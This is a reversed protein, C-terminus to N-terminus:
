FTAPQKCDLRDLRREIHGLAEHLDHFPPLLPEQLSAGAHMPGSGIARSSQQLLPPVQALNPDLLYRLRHAVKKDAQERDFKGEAAKKEEPTFSWEEVVKKNESQQIWVNFREEGTPSTRCFRNLKIKALMLPVSKQDDDDSIDDLTTIFFIATCDKVFNLPGEVCLMIPFTYMIVLRAFANIGFDMACRCVWENGAGHTVWEGRIEKKVDRVKGINTDETSILFHWYEYNFKKGLQANAAYMQIATGLVWYFYNVKTVTKTDKDNNLFDVYLGFMALQICFTPVVKDMSWSIDMYKNFAVADAINEDEYDGDYEDLEELELEENATAKRYLLARTSSSNTLKDKYHDSL